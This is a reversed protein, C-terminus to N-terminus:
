PFVRTFRWDGCSRSRTLALLDRNPGMAYEPRFDALINLRNWNAKQQSLEEDHRPDAVLWQLFEDQEASTLGRETRIIWLAAEDEIKESNSM